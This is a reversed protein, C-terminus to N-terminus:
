QILERIKADYEKPTIVGQIRKARLGAVKEAVAPVFMIGESQGIGAILTLEEGDRYIISDGTRSFEAEAGQALLMASGDKRFYAGDSFWNEGEPSLAPNLGQARSKRLVTETWPNYLVTSGSGDSYLIREGDASFRAGGSNLSVSAAELESGSELDRVILRYYPTFVPPDVPHLYLLVASQRAIDIMPGREFAPKAGDVTTQRLTSDRLLKEVPLGRGPQWRYFLSQYNVGFTYSKVRAGGAILEDDSLWSVSSLRAKLVEEAIPTGYQNYIVIRSEDGRAFVAALFFGRPSWALAIPAGGELLIEEKFVTHYLKLGSSVMAVVTGDPSLAFPSAKDVKALRTATVGEALGGRMPLTSCAAALLAFVVAFLVSISRMM